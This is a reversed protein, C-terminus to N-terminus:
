PNQLLGMQNGAKLFPTFTDVTSGEEVIEFNYTSREDDIQELTLQINLKGNMDIRVFNQESDINVVEECIFQVFRHAANSFTGVTEGTELIFRTRFGLNGSGQTGKPENRKDQSQVYKSEIAVIALLAKGKIAENTFYEKLTFSDRSIARAAHAKKLAQIPNM